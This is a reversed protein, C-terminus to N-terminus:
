TLDSGLRRGRPLPHRGPTPLCGGERSLWDLCMGEAKGRWLTQRGADAAISNHGGAVLTQGALVMSLPQDCRVQWPFCRGDRDDGQRDVSRRDIAKSLQQDVSTSKTKKLEQIGKQPSCHAGNVHWNCTVSGTSRVLRTDSQLYSMEPTVIM